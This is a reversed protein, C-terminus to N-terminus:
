SLEAKSLLGPDCCRVENERKDGSAWVVGPGTLSAVVEEVGAVREADADGKGRDHRRDPGQVARAVLGPDVDDEESGVAADELTPRVRGKSRRPM